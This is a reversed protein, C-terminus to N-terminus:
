GADGTEFEKPRSNEKGATSEVLRQVTELTDIEAATKDPRL